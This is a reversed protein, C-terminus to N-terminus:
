DIISNRTTKISDIFKLKATIIFKEYGWSKNFGLVIFVFKFKKPLSQESALGLQIFFSLM